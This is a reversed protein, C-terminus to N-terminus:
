YTQFGTGINDSINGVIDLGLSIWLKLNLIIQDDTLIVELIHSSSIDSHRFSTLLIDVLYRKKTLLVFIDYVVWILHILNM